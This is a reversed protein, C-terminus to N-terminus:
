SVLKPKLYKEINEVGVKFDNKYADSGGFKEYTMSKTEKEPPNPKESAYMFPHRVGDIADRYKFLTVLIRRCLDYEFKGKLQRKWTNLGTIAVAIAAGTLIVDKILVILESCTM